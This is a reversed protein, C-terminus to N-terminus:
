ARKLAVGVGALTVGMVLVLLTFEEGGAKPLKPNWTKSASASATPSPTPDAEEESEDMFGGVGAVEEEEDEITEQTFVGAVKSTSTEPQVNECTCATDNPCTTNVCRKVGEIELCELDDPCQYSYDCADYCGIITLARQISETTVSEIEPTKTDEKEVTVDIVQDTETVGEEEPYTENEVTTEQINESNSDAVLTPAPTESTKSTDFVYFIGTGLFLLTIASALLLYMTRASLSQM